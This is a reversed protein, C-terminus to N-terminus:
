GCIVVQLDAIYVQKLAKLILYYSFTWLCNGSFIRLGVISQSQDWREQCRQPYQAVCANANEQETSVPAGTWSKPSRCRALDAALVRWSVFCASALIQHYPITLTSSADGFEVPYTAHSSDHSIRSTSAPVFKLLKTCWNGTPWSIGRAHLHQYM